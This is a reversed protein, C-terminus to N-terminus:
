GLMDDGNPATPPYHVQNFSVNLRETDFIVTKVDHYWTSEESGKWEVAVHEKGDAGRLALV